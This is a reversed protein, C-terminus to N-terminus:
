INIKNKRASYTDFPKFGEPVPYKFKKAGFNMIWKANKSVEAGVTYENGDNFFTGRPMINKEFYGNRNDKPSLFIENNDWNIWKGDFSVYYKGSDFDVAFGVVFSKKLREDSIDNIAKYSYCGDDESGNIDCYIGEKLPSIIGVNSFTPTKAERNKFTAEFYYKGDGKKYFKNAKAFSSAGINSYKIELGDSSINYDNKDHREFYVNQTTSPNKFYELKTGNKGDIWFTGNDYKYQFSSPKKGTYNKVKNFDFEHFTMTKNTKEIPIKKNTIVKSDYYSSYYIKKVKAGTPIKVKWLVGEYSTLLLIIPKEKIEVNVIVEGMEHKNGEYVAIVHLDGDERFQPTVPPNQYAKTHKDTERLKRQAYNSKKNATYEAKAIVFCDNYIKPALDSIFDLIVENDISIIGWKDNQKACFMDNNQNRYGAFHDFDEYKFPIVTQENETIIGFKGKYKAFYFIKSDSLFPRLSDYARKFVKKGRENIVYYKKNESIIIFNKGIYQPMTESQLKSLKKFNTDFITIEIKNNFNLCYKSYLEAFLIRPHKKYTEGEFLNKPKKIGIFNDSYKFFADYRGCPIIEKGKDDVIGVKNDRRKLYFNGAFNRVSDTNIRNTAPHNNIMETEEYLIKGNVDIYVKNLEIENTGAVNPRKRCCFAKDKQSYIISDYKPPIIVQNKEDVIGWVSKKLSSNLVRFFDKNNFKGIYAIENYKFPIITKGNKNVLSVSLKDTLKYFKGYPEIPYKSTIKVDFTGNRVSYIGTKANYTVFCDPSFVQILNAKLLERGDTDILIHFKNKIDRAIFLPQNNVQKIYLYKCPIIVKGTDSLLGVGNVNEVIFCNWDTFNIKDYGEKTLQKGNSDYLYYKFVKIFKPTPFNMKTKKSIFNNVVKFQNSVGKVSHLTWVVEKFQNSFDTKAKVEVSFARFFIICFLIIISFLIAFFASKNNKNM